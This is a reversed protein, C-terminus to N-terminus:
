RGARRLIPELFNAVNAAVLRTGEANPHIGDPQNLAPSAAVGELLFPLLPTDLDAALRPYVQEFELVYERGFNPPLKMGALIVEIHATKLREIMRRLNAEMRELSLGRLGDNAGFAVIV